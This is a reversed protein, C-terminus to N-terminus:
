AAIREAIDPHSAIWSLGTSGSHEGGLRGLIVRMPETGWGRRRCFDAAGRDAEREFDRSYGAQAFITPLTAGISSVSSLDGLVIGLVFVVGSNQLTARVGHRQEVHAVEHALVALLEEDSQALAVLEDTLLITGSPLALANPGLDPASRFELEYDFDDSGAESVLLAFEERLAAQREPPLHSPQLDLLREITPQAQDGILRNVEDPLAFAVARAAVPLGWVYAAVAGLVLAGAAVLAYRWRSELGHVFRAGRSRAWWVEWSALLELDRTEVTAGDPLGIIRPTRGLPPTIRCAALAVRRETRPGSIRLEGTASLTVTVPVAAATVGDFLEGRLIGSDAPSM